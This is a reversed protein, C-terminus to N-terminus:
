SSSSAGAGVCVRFIGVMSSLAVSVSGASSREITWCGCATMRRSCGVRSIGTDGVRFELLHLTVVVVTGTRSSSSCRREEKLSLSRVGELQLLLLKSWLSGAKVGVIVLSCANAFIRSRRLALLWSLDVAEDRALAACGAAEALRSTLPPFGVLGTAGRLRERVRAFYFQM